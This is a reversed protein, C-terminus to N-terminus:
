AHVLVRFLSVFGGFRCSRFSRFSVVSVVSVVSVLSVALVFGRFCVLGHFSCFCFSSHYRKIFIYYHDFSPFFYLM